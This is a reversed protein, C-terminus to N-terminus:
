VSASRRQRSECLSLFVISVNLRVWFLVVIKVTKLGETDKRVKEFRCLIIFFRM